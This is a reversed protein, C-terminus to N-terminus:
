CILFCFVYQFCVDLIFLFWAYVSYFWYFSTFLTVFRSFRMFVFHFNQVFFIDCERACFHYYIRRPQITTSFRCQRRKWTQNEPFSPYAPVPLLLASQSLVAPSIIPHDRCILFFVTIFSCSVTRLVTFLVSLIIFTHLFVTELIFTENHFGHKKIGKKVFFKVYMLCSDQWM